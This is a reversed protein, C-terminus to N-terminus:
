AAAHHPSVSATSSADLYSMPPSSSWRQKIKDESALVQKQSLGWYWFMYCSISQAIRGWMLKWDLCSIGERADLLRWVGAKSGKWALELKGHGLRWDSELQDWGRCGNAGREVGVGGRTPRRSVVEM